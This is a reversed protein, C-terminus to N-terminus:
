SLGRLFVSLVVLVKWHPVNDTGRHSWLAQRHMRLLSLNEDITPWEPLDPLVFGPFPGLLIVSLPLCSEWTDTSALTKVSAQSPLPSLEAALPSGVRTHPDSNLSVHTHPDSNLDRFGEHFDPLLTSTQAEVTSSAPVLCGQFLRALWVLM